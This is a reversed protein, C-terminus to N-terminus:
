PAVSDIVQRARRRGNSTPFPRKDVSGLGSQVLNVRFKADAVHCVHATSKAALRGRVVDQCDCAGSSEQKVVNSPPEVRGVESSTGQSQAINKREWV